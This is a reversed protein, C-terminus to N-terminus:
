RQRITKIEERLTEMNALSREMEEHMFVLANTEDRIPELIDSMVSMGFKDQVSESFSNQLNCIGAFIDDFM